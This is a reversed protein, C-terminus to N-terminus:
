HRHGSERILARKKKDKLASDPHLWLSVHAPQMTERVVGVLDDSLADLDTEERLAASFAELTKAADYKRRYFRRDIFSQIRHRLPSFLAAIVLTSVVIALQPQEEQGTRATFVAQTATVGGFYVLALMLTLSGYVLTRNIIRDIDYLRYRLIAVGVAVPIGTLGIMIFVFAAGPGAIAQAPAVVFFFGGGLVAAAYAFWKIQQREEGEAGQLRVFVSIVALVCCVLLTAAGLMGLARVTYGLAGGIGFPNDISPYFYNPQAWTAWSFAWLAGGALAAWVVARWGHALLRGHPFLLVLLVASPFVWLGVWETVWLMLIGGPVSGSRAFLAYDAYAGAFAGIEFFLGMGCLIWGVSNKSRHSVLFAGVTPYVLLPVGALVEYNPGHRAPVPPTYFDLLVALVALAGCLAWLLWALLAAARRSRGGVGRDRQRAGETV